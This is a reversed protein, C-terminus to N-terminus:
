KARETFSHTSAIVYIESNDDRDSTFAMRTGDHSWAPYRDMTADVTLQTPNAGNADMVYIEPNGERESVFVVRVGDPSLSPSHDAEPATTLPLRRVPCM